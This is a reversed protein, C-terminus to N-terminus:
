DVILMSIKYEQSHHDGSKSQLLNNHLYKSHPQTSTLQSSCLFMSSYHDINLPHDMACLGLVLSYATPSVTTKIKDMSVLLKESIHPM